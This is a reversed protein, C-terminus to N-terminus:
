DEPYAPQHAAAPVLTWGDGLDVEPSTRPQDPEAPEPSTRDITKVLISLTALLTGYRDGIQDRDPWSAEYEALLARAAATHDELASPIRDGM